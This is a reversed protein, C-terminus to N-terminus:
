AVKIKGTVANYIEIKRIEELKEIQAEINKIFNDINNIKDSLYNSIEIQEEIPPVLIKTAVLVDNNVAPYNAGVSQSNITQNFWHSLVLFYLYKSNFSKKSTMVAFGTSAIMNEPVDELYAIAKLYPRVTSMVVDNEKVVRRARSPAEYFFLEGVNYLRLESIEKQVANQLVMDVQTKSVLASLAKLVLYVQWMRSCRLLLVKRANHMGMKTLYDCVNKCFRGRVYKFRGKDYAGLLSQFTADISDKPYWPYSVVSGNAGDFKSWDLTVLFLIQM